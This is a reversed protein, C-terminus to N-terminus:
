VHGSNAGAADCGQKWFIVSDSITEMSQRAAETLIAYEMIERQMRAAESQLKERLTQLEVIHQEIEQVSTGSVRQLMSGINNVTLESDDEWQPSPAVADRRVIERIESEVKSFIEVAIDVQARERSKLSSM